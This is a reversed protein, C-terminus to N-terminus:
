VGPTDVLAESKSATFMERGERLSRICRPAVYDEGLRSSLSPLSIVLDKTRASRTPAFAHDVIPGDGTDWMALNAPMGVEVSPWGGTHCALAMVPALRQARDTHNMAAYITRWPDLSSQGVYSSFELPVGAAAIDAWPSMSVTRLPGLRRNYLGEEGGFDIEYQPKAVLVIGFLVLSALASADMLEAGVIRHGVSRFNELGVHEVALEVGEVFEDMARDGHIVFSASRGLQTANILHHAIAASSMYIAGRGEDAGSWQPAPVDDYRQNVAAKHSGIPGDVSSGAAFSVVEPFDSLLMEGQEVTLLEIAPALGIRPLGPQNTNAEDPSATLGALSKDVQGYHNVAVFGESAAQQLGSTAYDALSLDPQELIAEGLAVLDIHSDVFGPVILEGDLNVIEVEYASSSAENRQQVIHPVESGNGLWSVVGDEVLLSDPLSDAVGRATAIIGGKYLIANVDGCM